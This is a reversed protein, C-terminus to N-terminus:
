RKIIEWSRHRAATDFELCLRMTEAADEPSLSPGMGALVRQIIDLNQDKTNHFNVHDQSRDWNYRSVIEAARGPYGPKGVHHYLRLERQFLDIEIAGETGSLIYNLKHGLRDQDFLDAGDKAPDNNSGPAAHMLFFLHSTVDNAFRYSVHVNDAIEFYPIVNPTSTVVYETVRSGTWWRVLDIYHCLKELCMSGSIDQRVQWSDQPFPPMSYTFHVSVLQGIEGQDIFEKTKVYINSYRCELGVQLFGGTEQQVALLEDIQKHSVGSPKETMVAKGARLAKVALPVHSANPTAIFVLSIRPDSMIADLDTTTKIQHKQRTRDLAEQKIDYGTIDDPSVLEKIHGIITNGMGGCGLVAVSIDRM